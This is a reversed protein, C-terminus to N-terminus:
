PTYIDSNKVPMDIFKKEKFSAPIVVRRWTKYDEVANENAPGRVWNMFPKPITKDTLLKHGNVDGLIKRITTKVSETDVIHAHKKAAKVASPTFNFVEKPLASLKEGVKGSYWWGGLLSINHDSPNVFVAETSIGNHCIGAYNLYCVVNYLSSMIWASHEPPIKNKYFTLIDSLSFFTEPKEFVLIVRDKLTIKKKIQPLFRLMEKKMKDDAFTFSSITREANKVLDFNDKEILFSVSRESIFMEGIELKKSKKFHILHKTGKEDKFIFETKSKWVGESVAQKAKKYLEQIKAFAAPNASPNKDPHWKFILKKYEDEVHEIGTFLDEAVTAAVIESESLDKM